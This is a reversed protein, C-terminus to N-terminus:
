EKIIEVNGSFDIFDFKDIYKLTFEDKSYIRVEVESNLVKDFALYRECNPLEPDADLKKVDHLWIGTQGSIKINVDEKTITLKLKGPYTSKYGYYTDTFVKDTNVFVDQSLVNSVILLFSFLIINKM